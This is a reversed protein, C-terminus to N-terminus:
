PEVRRILFWARAVLGTSKLIWSWPRKMDWAVVGLCALIAGAVNEVVVIGVHDPVNHVGRSPVLVADLMSDVGDGLASAGALLDSRHEFPLPAPPQHERQRPGLGRILRVTDLDRIRQREPDTGIRLLKTRPQEIYTGVGSIYVTSPPSALTCFSNSM